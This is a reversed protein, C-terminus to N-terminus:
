PACRLKEAQTAEAKEITAQRYGKNAEILDDTVQLHKKMEETLGYTEDIMQKYDEISENRALALAGVAGAVSLIVTALGGFKAIM